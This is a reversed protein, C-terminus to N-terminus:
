KAATRRVWGALRSWWGEAVPAALALTGPKTAAQLQTALRTAAELYLDQYQARPDDVGLPTGSLVPFVGGATRLAIRGPEPEIALPQQVAWEDHVARVAALRTASLEGLMRACLQPRQELTIVNWTQILGFMPEFPEDGPELLVDYASAWDAEGAAMWGRWLKDHLCKDLLVGLLRGEHLVSVLRGPAWRAPFARAAVAERRRALETLPLLLSADSAGSPAPEAGAPVLADSAAADGPGPVTLTGRILSLPPWLDLTMNKDQLRIEEPTLRKLVLIKLVQLIAGMNGAEIAIGLTQSIWQGLTTRAYDAPLGERRHVLGLRGARYHYSAIAQRSPIGPLGRQAERGFGECLLIREPEPLGAIFASAAAHVWRTSLGHEALESEASEAAGAAKLLTDQM